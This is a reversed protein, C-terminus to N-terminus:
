RKGATGVVAVPCAAHHLMHQSTSGLLLGRFGGRGRTGVVLLQAHEAHRLLARAPRERVVERAVHVDPYKEQWGALREALLEEAQRQVSDLEFATAGAAYASELLLDTWAHVAVLEAGRASAQAFAFAIADEGVPTGDVGVVVPGTVRADEGRVVVMPSHARGALEVATSGLVLGSFGGMGRSGLVVLAADYSERVLLAVPSMEDLFTEVGLEPAVRVAEARADDLWAQGRDRLAAHLAHGDVVHPPYGTVMEVAHVLRLGVERRQAEVAAWRVAHM